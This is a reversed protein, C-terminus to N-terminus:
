ALIRGIEIQPAFHDAVHRSDVFEVAVTSRPTGQDLQWVYASAHSGGSTGNVAEFLATVFASNTQDAHLGEAPAHTIMKAAIQDLSTGDAAMGEDHALGEAHPPQGLLCYSLRVITAATESAVFVGKAFTGTLSDLTKPSRAVDAAVTPRSTGQTLAAVYNAGESQSPTHGFAAEYLTNVFDQNSTSQYAGHASTYQHSSLLTEALSATSGGADISAVDRALSLPDPQQGLV